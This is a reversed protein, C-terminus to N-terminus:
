FVIEINRGGVDEALNEKNEKRPPVFGPRALLAGGGCRLVRRCTAVVCVGVVEEGGTVVEIRGIHVYRDHCKHGIDEDGREECSQSSCKM